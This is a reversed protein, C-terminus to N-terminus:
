FRLGAALRTQNDQSYNVKVDRGARVFYRGFDFTMVLSSGQVPSSEPAERGKKYGLDLTLRRSAELSQRWVLHAIRQDVGNRYTKTLYTSLERGATAKSGVGLTLANNPDFNLNYYPKDNNRDVGWILYNPGGLQGSVSLGVFGKSAVQLSPVWQGWPEAITKEIGARTQRDGQQWYQGLWMVQGDLSARLNADQALRQEAVSYLGHTYKLSLPEEALAQSEAGGLLLALLCTQFHCLSVPM